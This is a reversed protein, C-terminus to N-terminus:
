SAIMGFKRKRRGACLINRTVADDAPCCTIFDQWEPLQDDLMAKLRAVDEAYMDRLLEREGAALREEYEWRVHREPVSVSGQWAPLGFFSRVGAVVEAPNARFRESIVVRVQEEPFLQCLRELQDAYLGRRFVDRLGPLTAASLEKECRPLLRLDLLEARREAGKALDHNHNSLARDIPNRLLVVIRAHPVLQRMRELAAPMYMYSPTVDGIYRCSTDFWEVYRAVGQAWEEDADFFHL